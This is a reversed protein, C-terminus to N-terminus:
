GEYRIKNYGYKIEAEKRTIIADNKNKFNGLFLYKGKDNKIRATWCNRDKRWFVGIVGSKNNERIKSNIANIRKDAIRLNCRRNDFINRNKHDIM